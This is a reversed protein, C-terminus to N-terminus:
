DILNEKILKIYKKKLNYKEVIDYFFDLKNNKNTFKRMILVSNVLDWLESTYVFRKFTIKEDTNFKAYFLPSTRNVEFITDKKLVIPAEIKRLHKGVDYSGMLFLTDSNTFHNCAPMTQMLLTKEETFFCIPPDTYSLFCFDPNSDNRVLVSSDFFQQDYMDSRVQKGDYVLRYDFTPYIAYINKYLETVAPCKIILKDYVNEADISLYQLVSQPPQVLTSKDESCFYVIM